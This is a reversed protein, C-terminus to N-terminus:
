KVVKSSARFPSRFNEGLNGIPGFAVSSFKLKNFRYCQFVLFYGETVKDAAEAFFSVNSLTFQCLSNANRRGMQIVNLIALSARQSHLQDFHQGAGQMGTTFGSFIKGTM